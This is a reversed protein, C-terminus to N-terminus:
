RPGPKGAEAAKDLTFRAGGTIQALDSDTLLVIPHAHPKQRAAVAMRPAHRKPIKSTQLPDSMM